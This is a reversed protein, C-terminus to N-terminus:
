LVLRDIAVGLKQARVELSAAIVGFLKGDAAALSACPLHEHLIVPAAVAAIAPVLRVRLRLCQAHVCVQVKARKVLHFSVQVGARAALRAAGAAGHIPLPEPGARHTSRRCRCCARRPNNWVPLRPRRKIIRARLLAVCHVGAEANALAIAVAVANTARTDAPDSPAPGIAGLEVQEWRVLPRWPQRHIGRVRRPAARRHLLAAPPVEQGSGLDHLIRGVIKINGRVPAASWCVIWRTNEGISRISTGM